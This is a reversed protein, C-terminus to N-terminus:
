IRKESLWRLYRIRAEAIWIMVDVVLIKLRVRVLEIM